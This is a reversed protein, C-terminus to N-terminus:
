IRRRKAVKPREQTVLTQYLNLHSRAAREWTYEAVILQQLNHGMAELRARKSLLDALGDTLGAVTSPVVRGGGAVEVEPFGCSDTLLVPTASAGAELAVLSMAERRSPVALLQARHYAAVKVKGAIPGLFSVKDHLGAADVQAQLEQGMGEDPGALVLRVDAFQDALAAVAALLLDPGKIPNLRGVFLVFPRPDHGLRIALERHAAEDPETFEEAWVGNPIVAVADPAVGYAAFESREADTIAIHAAATRVMKRGVVSNYIRKLRASRGFVSLAGAPAVVHPTGARRAARYALTNLMTWHGSLHVVDAAAVASAIRRRAPAPLYFRRNLCRLATVETGGLGAGVQPELGMDLTLVSTQTGLASLARSLNVTRGATGGGNVPDLSANVQLIRM